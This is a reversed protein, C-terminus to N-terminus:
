QTELLPRCVLHRLAQLESTHEESRDQSVYAGRARVPESGGLITVLFAVYEAAGDLTKNRARLDFFNPEAFTRQGGKADVESVSIIREARPFPLSRWLVADVVSFIATCAGVGLALSLVAVITYAPRQWLIRLAYKLDRWIM